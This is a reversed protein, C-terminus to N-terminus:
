ELYMARLLWRSERVLLFCLVNAYEVICIVRIMMAECEEDAAVSKIAPSRRNRREGTVTGRLLFVNHDSRNDVRFSRM